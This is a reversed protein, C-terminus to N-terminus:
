FLREIVTFAGITALIMIAASGLYISIYILKEFGTLHGVREHNRRNM